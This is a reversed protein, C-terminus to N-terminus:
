STGASATATGVAKGAAVVKHLFAPLLSNREATVSKPDSSVGDVYLLGLVNQAPIVVIFGTTTVANKYTINQTLVVSGTPLGGLRKAAKLTGTVGKNFTTKPCTRPAAQYAKLAAVVGGPRYAVVESAVKVQAKTPDQSAWGKSLWSAQLRDVRAFDSPDVAKTYGCAIFTRVGLGSSEAASEKQRVLKVEASGLQAAALARRIQASTNPTAATTPSSTTPTPTVVATSTATPDKAPDAGSSCAALGLAAVGASIAGVLTVVAKRAHM